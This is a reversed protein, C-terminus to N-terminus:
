TNGLKKLYIFHSHIANIINLENYPMSFKIAAKQIEPTIITYLTHPLKPFLHHAAHSNFGGFIWNAIKNKPHYDLSVSLQHEHYCTPLYGNKDYKPFSTETTLHSIILTLVFFISIFGHMIFFSILVKSLEIESFYYPIAIMYILYFIKLLIVESIFKRSYSLDKMNAVEKKFLYIFDKIFIWHITYLCYILPAYLHQFKHIKKLKHSSSLRIFPNNDIDADCGDVNPFIHHSSIHRKKWLTANVGQLNFILYHAITNYTNNLFLTGHVADHSANFALLIGSLGLLTYTSILLTFNNSILNTFLLGYLSIFVFVYFFFKIILIRKSKMIIKDTLIDSIKLNLEKFFDSNTPRFKIKM